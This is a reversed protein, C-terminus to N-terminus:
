IIAKRADANSAVAAAMSQWFNVKTAGKFLPASYRCWSSKRFRTLDCAPFMYCSLALSKPPKMMLWSFRLCSSVRSKHLSQLFSGSCHWSSMMTIPAPLARGGVQAGTWSRAALTVKM